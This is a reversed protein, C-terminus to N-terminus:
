GGGLVRAIEHELRRPVVAATISYFAAASAGTIMEKPIYLGSKLTMIPLRSAGRRKFVGKIRLPVRAGKRGGKMFGGPYHTATNWPHATVGSGKERPRFFKVRVDGGSSRIVFEMSGASAGKGKKLARHLTGYKLGTQAVLAKVMGTRAMQGGRNIARAIVGKSGSSAMRFRQGLDIGRFETRLTMGAM